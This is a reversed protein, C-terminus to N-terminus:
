MMEKKEKSNMMDCYLAMCLRSEIVEFFLKSFYNFVSPSISLIAYNQLLM